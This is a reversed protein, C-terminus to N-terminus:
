AHRVDDCLSQQLGVGASNGAIDVADRLFSLVQLRELNSVAQFEHHKHSSDQHGRAHLAAAMTSKGWGKGGLFAVANGDIEVASAHFVPLGRQRLVVRMAAGLPLRRLQTLDADPAADLIIERGGETLPTGVNKWLLYMGCDATWYSYELSGTVHEAHNLPGLGIDLDTGNQGAELEPLMLASRIDLGSAMYRYTSM